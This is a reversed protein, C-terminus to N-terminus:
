YGRVAEEGPGQAQDASSPLTDTKNRLTRLKSAIGQCCMKGAAVM